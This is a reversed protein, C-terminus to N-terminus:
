VLQVNLIQEVGTEREYLRPTRICGVRLRLQSSTLLGWDVKEREGEREEVDGYIHYSM